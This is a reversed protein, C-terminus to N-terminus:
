LFAQVDAPALQQPMLSKVQTVFGEPGEDKSVGKCVDAMEAKWRFSLLFYDHYQNGAVRLDIIKVTNWANSNTLLEFSILVRVVEM